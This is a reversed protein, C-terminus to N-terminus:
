QNITYSIKNRKAKLTKNLSLEVEHDKDTKCANDCSHHSYPITYSVSNVNSIYSTNNKYALCLSYPYTIHQTYYEALPGSGRASYTTHHNYHAARPGSGRVPSRRAHQATYHIRSSHYAISHLTDKHHTNTHLHSLQSYSKTNKYAICQPPIPLYKVNYAIDNCDVITNCTIHITCGVNFSTVIHSQATYHTLSATAHKATYHIRKSHYATSLLTDKHNTANHTHLSNAANFAIDYCKIIVNCTTQITCGLYSHTVTNANYAIHSHLKSSLTHVPKDDNSFRAGYIANSLIILGLLLLSSKHLKKNQNNQIM